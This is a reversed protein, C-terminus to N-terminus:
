TAEEAGGHVLPVIESRVWARFSRAWTTEDMTDRLALFRAVEGLPLFPFTPSRDCPSYQGDGGLAYVTLIAGDFRWVEPVRLAAYIGMRNLSSKTIDIEIALDPPPDITLDIERRGRILSEHQIYYCEDPELGRDLMERRLTTSGGSEIAVNLEETLIEVMRGLLSKCKEHDRSPSMLELNGQDYTLRVPRDGLEALFAEYTRWSVNRLLFRQEAPAQQITAM